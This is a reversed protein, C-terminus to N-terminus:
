HSPLARTVFCAAAASSRRIETSAQSRVTAGFRLITEPKWTAVGSFCPQTFSCRITPATVCTTVPTFTADAPDHGSVRTIM